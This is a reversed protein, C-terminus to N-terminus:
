NTEFVIFYHVKFAGLRTKNKHQSTSIPQMALQVSLHPTLDSGEPSKCDIHCLYYTLLHVYARVQIRLKAM